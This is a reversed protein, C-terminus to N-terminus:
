LFQHFTYFNDYMLSSLLAACNFPKRNKSTCQMRKWGPLLANQCNNRSEMAMLSTMLTWTDWFLHSWPWHRWVQRVFFYPQLKTTNSWWSPIWIYTNLDLIGTFRQIAEEERGIKGTEWAVWDHYCQHVLIGWDVPSRARGWDRERFLSLIHFHYVFSWKM